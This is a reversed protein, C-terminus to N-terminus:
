MQSLWDFGSDGKARWDFQKSLFPFLFAAMSVPLYLNTDPCFSLNKKTRWTCCLSLVLCPFLDTKMESWVEMDRQRKQVWKKLDFLNGKIRRRTVQIEATKGEGMASSSRELVVSCGLRTSRQYQNQSKKRRNREEASGMFQKINELTSFSFKMDKLDVNKGEGEM